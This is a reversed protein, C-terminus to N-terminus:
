TKPPNNKDVVNGDDDEDDDNDSCCDPNTHFEFWRWPHGVSPPLLVCEFGCGFGSLMSLSKVNRRVALPSSMSPDRNSHWSEDVVDAVIDKCHVCCKRTRLVSGASVRWHYTLHFLLVLSSSAKLIVRADDGKERQEGGLLKYSVCFFWNCSMGRM